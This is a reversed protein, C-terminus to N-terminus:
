HQAASLNKLEARLRSLNKDIEPLASDPVAPAQSTTLLARLQHDIVRATELAELSGGQWSTAMPTVSSTSPAINFNSDLPALQRGLADVNTSIATVHDQVLTRLQSREEPALSQEREAPFQGQLNRLAYLHSLIATSTALAQNTFDQEREAAGFFKLLRQDDGGSEVEIHIPVDNATPPPMTRVVTANKLPVRPATLEVQVGPQDALATRLENQRDPSLQWVGVQVAQNSRTVTVPEGLDAKLNHLTAFVDLEAKDLNVMPLHVYSAAIGSVPHAVPQTLMSPPAEPELHALLEAPVASTPMVSYDDEMVEFSADPFDLTMQKVQWTEPQVIFSVREVSGSVGNTPGAFRLDVDSGQRAVTPSGGAAKGWSDVSAASLPLGVPIDHAQYQAKLDAAASDGDAVNWYTATSSKWTDVSALQTHSQGHTRKRIHVRERIVQDKTIANRQTDAVQIRRLIEKASVPKSRFISYGFVLLVAIVGSVM